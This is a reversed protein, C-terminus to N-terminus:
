VFHSVTLNTENKEHYFQEAHENQSIKSSHCAVLMFALSLVISVIKWKM